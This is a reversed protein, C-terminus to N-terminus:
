EVKKLVGCVVPLSIHAGENQFSAISTPFLPNTSTGHVLVVRGEFSVNMGLDANIRALSASKEYTMGVGRPYFDSGAAQSNLDGDLPIIVKGVVALAEYYDIFSDGNTDDAMTPCRSGMHLSQRHPVPQDDDMATSVQLVDDRLSIPAQGYPLFGNSHVNVPRLVAYYTGPAAEIVQPQVGTKSSSGGSQKGGCAAFSILALIALFNMQKM